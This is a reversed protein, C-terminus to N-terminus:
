LRLWKGPPKDLSYWMDKNTVLKAPLKTAKILKMGEAQNRPHRDRTISDLAKEFNIGTPLRDIIIEGGVVKVNGLSKLYDIIKEAGRRATKPLDTPILWDNGTAIPPPPPPQLNEGAVPVTPANAPINDGPPEILTDANEPLFSTPSQGELKNVFTSFEKLAETYNKAKWNIDRTETDLIRRMTNDLDLARELDPDDTLRYRRKMNEIFSLPVLALKRYDM